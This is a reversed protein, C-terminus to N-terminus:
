RTLRVLPRVFKPPSLKMLMSFRTAPAPFSVSIPVAPLLKMSPPAPLSEIVPLPPLSVITRPRPLSVSVPRKPTPAATNPPSPSSRIKWTL